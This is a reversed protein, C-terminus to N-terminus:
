GLLGERELVLRIEEFAATINDKPFRIQGLGQINTFEECGQELLVIARTFGLRGQFLGVEHIVNMRAHLRGDAQEDEATLIVFAVAASDLMESLRAINTVGAVPVRNFEDYPLGLRDKVFDKLIRWAPARGHGIFVNTGVLSNKQAKREIRTLHSGAQKAIESLEHACASPQNLATMDALVLQHPAAKLGQTLALTDRSMFSGRPLMAKLIDSSDRIVCEEAREKLGRLFPDNTESLAVTLASLLEARQDQVRVSLAESRARVESLDPNGARRYIESTIGEPNFEEWDGRSGLGAMRERPGWESSFQAGPPRPELGQYYYYAHYGINSGSWSKAVSSAADGVKQITPLFRTRFDSHFEALTQGIDLLEQGLM